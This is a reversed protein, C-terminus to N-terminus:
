RWTVYRQLWYIWNNREHCEEPEKASWYCNMRLCIRTHKHTHLFWLKDDSYRCITHLDKGCNRVRVTLHLNLPIAVLLSNKLRLMHTKKKLKFVICETWLSYCFLSFLAFLRIYMYWKTAFTYRYLLSSKEVIHLIQLMVTNFSIKIKNKKTNSIIDIIIIVHSLSEM